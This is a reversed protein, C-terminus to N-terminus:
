TCKKTASHEIYSYLIINLNIYIMHASLANILTHYIYMIMTMMMTMMTMMMLFIVNIMREDVGQATM